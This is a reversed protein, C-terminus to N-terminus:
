QNEKEEKAKESYPVVKITLPIKVNESLNLSIKYEGLQKIPENLYIKRKDIQKGTKEELIKAILVPTVSGYLKNKEGVRVPIELEQISEFSKTLEEVQKKRKEKKIEIIKQQHLLAKKTSKTFPIVLNKPILYNRAYGDAVDKIDGADGLNPIDQKLIVKM